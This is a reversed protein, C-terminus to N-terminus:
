RKEIRQKAIDFYQDDLEMGIFKRATNICAVGTTGSGAFFGTCHRRCRYESSNEILEM